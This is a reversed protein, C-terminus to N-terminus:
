GTDKGAPAIEDGNECGNTERALDDDTTPSGVVDDVGADVVSAALTAAEGAAPSLDLRVPGTVTAPWALLLTGNPEAVHIVAPVM